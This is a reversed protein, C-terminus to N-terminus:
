KPDGYGVGQRCSQRIASFAPLIPEAMTVVLPFFATFAISKHRSMILHTPVMEFKDSWIPVIVRSLHM